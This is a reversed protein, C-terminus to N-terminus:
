RIKQTNPRRRPAVRTGTALDILWVCLFCPTTRTNCLLFFWNPDDCHTVPIFWALGVWNITRGGGSGSATLQSHCACRDISWGHKARQQQCSRGAGVVQQVHHEHVITNHRKNQQEHRSTNASQQQTNNKATSKRPHNNQEVGDWGGRNTMQQRTLHQSVKQDARLIQVQQTHTVSRRRKEESSRREFKCITLPIEIKNRKTNQKDEKHSKDM